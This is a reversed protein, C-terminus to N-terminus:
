SMSHIYIDIFVFRSVYINVYIYIYIREPQCIYILTHTYTPPHINKHMCSYICMIYVCVRM